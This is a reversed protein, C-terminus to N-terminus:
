ILTIVSVHSKQGDQLLLVPKNLGGPAHQLFHGQLYQLFVVSNSWSSESVDGPAGPTAGEMLETMMRM